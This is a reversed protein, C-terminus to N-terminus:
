LDCGWFWYIDWNTKMVATFTVFWTLEFGNLQRQRSMDLSIEATRLTQHDSWWTSTNISIEMLQLKMNLRLRSCSRYDLRLQCSSPTSFLGPPLTLGWEAKEVWSQLRMWEGDEMRWVGSFFLLKLTMRERMWQRDRSWRQKDKRVRCRTWWRLALKSQLPESQTSILCGERSLRLCSSTM